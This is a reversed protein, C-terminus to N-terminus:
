LSGRRTERSPRGSALPAVGCTAGRMRSSRKWQATRGDRVDESVDGQLTDVRAQLADRAETLAAATSDQATKARASLDAMQESLSKM